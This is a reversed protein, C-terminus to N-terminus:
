AKLVLNQLNFLLLLKITWTGCLGFADQNCDIRRVYDGYTNTRSCVLCIGDTNNNMTDVFSAISFLDIFLFNIKWSLIKKM